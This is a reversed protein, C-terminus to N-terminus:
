LRMLAGTVVEPAVHDGFVTLPADRYAAPQAAADFSAVERALHEARAATRFGVWAPMGRGGPEEGPKAVRADGGAAVVVPHGAVALERSRTEYADTRPM